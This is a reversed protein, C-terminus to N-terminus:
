WCWLFSSFGCPNKWYLIEWIVALWCLYSCGNRLLCHRSPDCCSGIWMLFEGFCWMMIWPIWHSSPYGVLPQCGKLQMLNMWIIMVSLLECWKDILNLWTVSIFSTCLYGSCRFRACSGSSWQLYCIISSYAIFRVLVLVWTVCVGSHAGSLGSLLKGILWCAVTSWM